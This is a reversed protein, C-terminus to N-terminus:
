EIFFANVLALLDLLYASLFFLAAIFFKLANMRKLLREGAVEQAFRIDDGLDALAAEIPRGFDKWQGLLSALSRRVRELEAPANKISLFRDVGSKERKEKLSLGLPILAQLTVVGEYAQDYGYFTKKRAKREIAVYLLLGGCQLALILACLPLEFARGLILRSVIMFTWTMLAMAFFQSLCGLRIERLKTEFRLDQLLPRKIRELSAAPTAGYLKALRQLERLLAGYFKYDPWPGEGTQAWQWASQGRKVLGPRVKFGRKLWLSQGKEWLSEPLFWLAFGLIAPVLLIM